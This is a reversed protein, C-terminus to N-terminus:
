RFLKKFREVLTLNVRKYVEPHIDLSGEVNSSEQIFISSAELKGKFFAGKQICIRETARLTGRVEGYVSCVGARVKGEVTGSPAIEINGPAILTGKLKGEFWAHSTFYLEGQMELGNSIQAYASELEVAQEEIQTQQILAKM